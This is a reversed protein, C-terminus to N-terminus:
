VGLPLEQDFHGNSRISKVASATLLNQPPVTAILEGSENDFEGILFLSYDEAHKGFMNNPDTSLVADGFARTASAEKQDVFPQGFFCAKSDFVSFVKYLMDSVVRIDKCTQLLRSKLKM